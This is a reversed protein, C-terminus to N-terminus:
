KIEKKYVDYTKKMGFRPSRMLLACSRRLPRTAFVYRKISHERCFNEFERQLLETADPNDAAHYLMSVEYERENCFLPTIEHACAFAVPRLSDDEVVAVWSLHNKVEHQLIKRYVPVPLKFRLHNRVFELKENFFPWLRVIDVCKTLRRTKM